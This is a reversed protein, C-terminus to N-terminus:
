KKSKKINMMVLGMYSLLGGSLILALINFKIDFKINVWYNFIM